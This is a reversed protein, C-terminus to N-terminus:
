EFSFIIRSKQIKIKILFSGKVKDSDPRKYSNDVYIIVSNTVIYIVESWFVRKTSCNIDCILFMVSEIYM